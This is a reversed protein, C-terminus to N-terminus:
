AGSVDHGRSGFVISQLRLLAGFAGVERAVRVGLAGVLVQGPLPKDAGLTVAESLPLEVLV